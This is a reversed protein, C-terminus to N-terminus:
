RDSRIPMIVAELNGSTLKLPHMHSTSAEWSQKGATGFLTKSGLADSLFTDNFLIAGGHSNAENLKATVYSVLKQKDVVLSATAMEDSPIAKFDPIVVRWNPFTGTDEKPVLLVNKGTVSIAYSGNSYNMNIDTELKHLRRGDTAVLLITGFQDIECNLFNLVHRTADKSIAKSLWKLAQFDPHTKEITVTQRNTETKM